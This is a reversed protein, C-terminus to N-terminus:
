ASAAPPPTISGEAPKFRRRLAMLSGAIILVVGTWVVMMLPKTSVELVLKPHGVQPVQPAAGVVELLVKKEEVSIRTLALALHPLGAAVRTDSPLDVPTSKKEAGMVTFVPEIVSKKGQYSVELVAGVSMAASQGHQGVDFKTFTIEYDGFKTPEGKTLELLPNQSIMTDAAKLEVPSIYLDKLPFIKIDPERMMAKNYESYYLSPLAVFANKGDTVNIEVRPKSSQEDRVGQFTLIYGLATQPQHQELVLQTTEDFSGSGVIGLLLLGVGIHSVPGGLSWWGSRYQRFAAIANSILGFSATGVFLLLSPKSVGGVYAIVCALLTLLIPLSLRKVLGSQQEGTWGLFPTIGLLLGIAIAVPLNVKNYFSVDVQSAKGWLGTLIPSSMGFFVFLGAVCLVYLGLLLTLERHLGSLDLKPSTTDRFRTLFFGMAAVVSVVIVGILYNGIGFDEFSHVSFDQLVGSRTLFTAYLVLVFSIVALLMNTRVLSGKKKQVLMGHVLALLTLWPVLSSNEVPDWGWYGGWGLVEYAWFGGIIIGAGLTTTAFLSWRFGSLNWRTSDRRRLASLVLAFPFIAAAYGVFLVPPHIVMWFNMLLPNMGTGDAPANVTDSFPSKLLLLLLIFGIFLSVIGMAVNDANASKRLFFLGMAGVFLAWLLFTGEQGAWFASVLFLFPQSLSSYRAVYTYQFQHALLLYLLLCSALTLGGTTVYFLRKSLPTVTRTTNKLFAFASALAALFTLVVIINGLNM